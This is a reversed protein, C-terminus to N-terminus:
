RGGAGGIRHSYGISFLVARNRSDVDFDTDDISILGHVYRAEFRLMGPWPLSVAVGGGVVLGPDLLKSTDKCDGVNFGDDLDCMAMLALEPGAFFYPKVYGMRYPAIELLLPISIYGSRFGGSRGSRFEAKAGKTTFVLGTATSLWSLLSFRGELAVAFGSRRSMTLSEGGTDAGGFWALSPGLWGGVELKEHWTEPASRAQARTDQPFVLLWSSLLVIVFTTVRIFATVTKCGRQKRVEHARTAVNAPIRVVPLVQLAATKGQRM